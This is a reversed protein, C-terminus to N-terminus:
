ARKVLLNIKALASLSFADFKFLPVKIGEHEFFSDEPLRDIDNRDHLELALDITHNSIFCVKELGIGRVEIMGEINPVSSAFLKNEQANIEVYDDSILTGGADIIRLALDSKGSGSPGFILVGKDAYEVCSAHLVKM